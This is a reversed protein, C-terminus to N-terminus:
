SSPPKWRKTGTAPKAWWEIDPDDELMRRFGRRVLSHDDVLLVSIQRRRCADGGGRAPVTLRVLAGGGEGDLFEIQGNVLEARERMSVLGMGTGRRHEPFGVGDDEVELVVSEPRSACVCRPARRSRTGRWM